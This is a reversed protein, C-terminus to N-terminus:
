AGSPLQRAHMTSILPSRASAGDHQRCGVAPM